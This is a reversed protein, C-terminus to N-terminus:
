GDEELELARHNPVNGALLVRHNHPPAGVIHQLAAGPQQRHKEGRGKGGPYLALHLPLAQLPPGGLSQHAPHIPLAPGVVLGIGTPSPAVGPVKIQIQVRHLLANLPADGVNQCGIAGQRLSLWIQM